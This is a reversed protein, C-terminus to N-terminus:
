RTNNRKRNEYKNKINKLLKYVRGNILLRFCWYRVLMKTEALSYKITSPKDIEIGFKRMIDRGEQWSYGGERYPHYWTTSIQNGHILVCYRYDPMKIHDFIWIVDEHSKSFRMYDFHKRPDFFTEASYVITYFPPNITTPNWNALRQTKNNFVYGKSHTFIKREGLEMAQIEKVEDSHYFDDSPQCTELIYKEGHYLGKLQPLIIELRELLNDYKYKDDWIPIGGYTFIFKLSTKSVYDYLEKTLPNSQEETRFCFWVIFDKETQNLLAQLTFKKFIEIRYAFWKDGRYDPKGLGTFPIMLFHIFDKKM